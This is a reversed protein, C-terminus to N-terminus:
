RPAAPVVGTSDRESAIANVASSAQREPAMEIRGRDPQLQDFAMAPDGRDAGFIQEPDIPQTQEEDEQGRQDKGKGKERM